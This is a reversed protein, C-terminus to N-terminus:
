CNNEEDENVGACETCFVYGDNDIWACPSAMSMECCSCKVVMPLNNETFWNGPINGEPMKVNFRKEVYDKFTKM